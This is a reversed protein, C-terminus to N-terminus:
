LTKVPLDMGILTGGETKRSIAIRGDLYVIKSRVTDLGKGQRILDEPIGTGDDEVRIFVRGPGEWLEIV